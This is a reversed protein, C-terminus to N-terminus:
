ADKYGKHRYYRSKSTKFFVKEIAFLSLNVVVV